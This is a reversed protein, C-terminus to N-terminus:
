RIILEEHREPPKYQITADSELKGDTVPPNNLRNHFVASIAGFEYTFKGEAEIMSALTILEDVTM